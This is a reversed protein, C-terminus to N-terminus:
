ARPYQDLDQERVGKEVIDRIPVLFTEGTTLRQVKKHTGFQRELLTIFTEHHEQGCTMHGDKIPLRCVVCRQPSDDSHHGMHGTFRCERCVMSRCYCNLLYDAVKGCDDCTLPMHLRWTGSSPM